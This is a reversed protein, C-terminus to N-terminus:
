SLFQWHLDRIKGDDALQGLTVQIKCNEFDVEYVDRGDPDVRVFQVDKLAGFSKVQQSMQPWQTRAAFALGPTMDEYDPQSAALASAWKRVADETGPSPKNAKWRAAVEPNLPQPRVQPMFVMGDVKGDPGPPEVNTPVEAYKFVVVYRDFGQPGVELFKISVLPGWTALDNTLRGQQNRAAQALRPTLGSYDPHGAEQSELYRQLFVETEPNPKNNAIRQALAANLNNVAAEDMRLAHQELGNQHLILESANGQPDVVFSVQAPVVTYFFKTESEPYVALPSQGTLQIFFKDGDKTVKFILNQRLQYYGVYKDFHTPDFPVVQRPQEQEARLRSIEDPTPLIDSAAAGAAPAPAQNQASAIPKPAEAAQVIPAAPAQPLTNLQVAALALAAPARALSPIAQAPGIPSAALIGAAVPSALVCIGAAGLLAKAALGLPRSPPATMITEVRTKLCAGSVGAVCALPSQLYLRCIQIIGQAYVEPDHGTEVVAEDCAREREEILRAGIWWVPPFFWFLAEVLMHIAATLNDRRRLHCLEHALIAPVQAPELGTALSEPFLLVPRWVGVVGPELLTPSSKVPVPAPWDLAKSRRLIARLRLWRAFWVIMVAAFGVSWVMALAPLPDFQPAVPPALIPMAASFPQAADEVVYAQAPVHFVPHSPPILRQGVAAFLSFPLLFKLSAAFWLRYRVAASNKRLALALLGVGFAFLTSQWLHDLLVSIM